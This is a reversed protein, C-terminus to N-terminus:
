SPYTMAHWAELNKLDERLSKANGRIVPIGEHSVHLMFDVLPIGAIKPGAGSHCAKAGTFPRRSPSGCTLSVSCARM